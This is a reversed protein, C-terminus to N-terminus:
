YSSHFKCKYSYPHYYCWKKWNYGHGYGYGYHKYGWHHKGYFKRHGYRYGYHKHGWTVQEVAPAAQEGLGAVSAAPMANASAAAGSVAVLVLARLVNKMIM